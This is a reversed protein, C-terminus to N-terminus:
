NTGFPNDGAPAAPAAPAPAAPATGFPDAAPAAAPAPEAPAGGFPNDAPPATPTAPQVPDDGFPNTADAAPAAAPADAAPAVPTDPSLSPPMAGTNPEVPAVLGAAPASPVRNKRKALDDARQAIRANLRLMEIEQRVPGQIRQLAFSVNVARKGSAELRAAAEFDAKAVDTMGLQHQTLGRFYLPRPDETGSNVVDNLVRQAEQYDGAFYRHVGYGYLETYAGEQAQAGSSLALGGLVLGLTKIWRGM